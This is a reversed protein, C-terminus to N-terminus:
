YIIQNSVHEKWHYDFFYYLLILLLVDYFLNHLYGSYFDQYMSLSLAGDLPISVSNFAIGGPAYIRLTIQPPPIFDILIKIVLMQVTVARCILGLIQFKYIVFQFKILPIEGKTWADLSLKLQGPIKTPAFRSHKLKM